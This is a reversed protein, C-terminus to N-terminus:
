KPHSEDMMCVSHVSILANLPVPLVGRFWDNGLLPVM